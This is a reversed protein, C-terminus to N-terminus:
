FIRFILEGAERASPTFSTRDGPRVLPLPYPPPITCEAIAAFSNFATHTQLEGAERAGGWCM